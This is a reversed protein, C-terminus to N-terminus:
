EAKTGETFFEPYTSRFYPWLKKVNPNTIQALMSKRHVRYRALIEPVLIGWGKRRAIKFGLDFDEWGMVDMISYGGVEEWTSKRLLAMADITNGHQLSAPNWKKTNQLSSMDGFKELYCYAFSADCNELAATLRAVCRPYLLNDADLVFVYPTRALTFGSNRSCALGQNSKHRILLCRNFRSHHAALWGRALESSRDTSCDDVVILDLESQTQMKASDLCNVIYDQYNYLSIAVTVSPTKDERKTELVVELESQKSSDNMERPMTTTLLDSPENDRNAASGVKSRGHRDLQKPISGRPLKAKAYPPNQFTIGPLLNTRECLAVRTQNPLLFHKIIDM